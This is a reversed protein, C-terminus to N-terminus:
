CSTNILVYWNYATHLSVPPVHSVHMLRAGKSRMFSLNSAKCVSDERSIVAHIVFAYLLSVTVYTTYCQNHNHVLLVTPHIIHLLLRMDVVPLAYDRSLLGVGAVPLPCDRYLVLRMVVVSGEVVCGIM